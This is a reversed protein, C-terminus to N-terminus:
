TDHRSTSPNRFLVCHPLDDAGAAAEHPRDNQARNGRNRDYQLPQPGQLAAPNNRTIQRLLDPIPDLRVLEALLQDDGELLIRRQALKQGDTEDISVLRTRQHDLAELVTPPVHDM